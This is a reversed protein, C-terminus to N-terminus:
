LKTKIKGAIIDKEIQELKAKVKASILSDFEHFPALGVEGTELTGVHVGGTFTADVIAKVTHVVSVDYNKTISTLIIDTYEPDTVAWDTDVGIVYANGDTKVEYLAGAGADTGAVPLIIDAGQDLLQQTMQRDEAACCFDGVFLGEHKESNWGLVQVNTGNKENYYAIGLAFGDMFDTVQPIDVGGFVGIKGTKTISAAAYGGLFAAQDVAYTQSWINDIPSDYVFDTFLFKQNPNMEAAIQIADMMPFLGIILDCDGRLFEQINREFDPASGSQLVKADWEFRTSADQVGKFITENFSHDYLGGTNTVQCVRGKDTPPIPTTAISTTSTCTPKDMHLYKKCEETTLRRTVRTKALAILDDVQLLYVRVGSDGGTALLKGDPSFLVDNLSSGDGFFTLLDEGTSVDWLKTTGDDSATAVRKGAPSYAISTVAGTHGPLTFNEEGTSANWIKATGDASSTAIHTGCREASAEPPSVCEPSFAIATVYDAHGRLVRIEKGTTADWISATGDQNGTALRTGEANFAVSFVIGSHTLTLIPTDSIKGSSIDWIKAKYDDSATALYKGDQTIAIANVIGTHGSLTAVEHNKSIDWTKVKTDNEAAVIHKGDPSFAVTFVNNKHGELTQIKQGTNADWLYTKNGSITAILKGDPSYKAAIVWGPHDSLSLLQEGTTTDWLRATGDDSATLLRTGDPNFVVTSIFDTHGSFAVLERGTTVDWTKPTNNPAVTALRLGDPSLAVSFDADIQGPFQIEKGTSPDIMNVIGNPLVVALRKGDPSYAAYFGELRLLQEGTVVDWTKASGDAAATVFQRGDPSPAVMMPAGPEHVQVVRQIRSAQIARHLADEAEITYATDLAELGLLISREPDVDLNTISAAALERSTALRSAIQAQRGFFLAAFAMILASVFAGTLYIARKRLRKASNTQEEARQSESEALRRTAELERQRQAEREQAERENLEISADLFECELENMEEQHTLAWERTQALRAGRYVM